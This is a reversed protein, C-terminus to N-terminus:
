LRFATPSWCHAQGLYKIACYPVTHIPITNHYTSIKHHITHQNWGLIDVSTKRARGKSKLSPLDVLHKKLRCNHLRTAAKSSKFAELSWSNHHQLVVSYSTPHQRSSTWRVKPIGSPLLLLVCSRSRGWNSVQQTLILNKQNAKSSSLHRSWAAFLRWMSPPGALFLASMPMTIDFYRLCTWIYKVCTTHTGESPAMNKGFWCCIAGNNGAAHPAQCYGIFLRYGCIRGFNGPNSDPAATELADADACWTNINPHPSHKSWLIMASPIHEAQFQRLTFCKAFMLTDRCIHKRIGMRRAFPM